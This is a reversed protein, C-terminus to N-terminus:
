LGRIKFTKASGHRIPYRYVCLYGLADAVHDLGGQKDPEGNKAYAQQELAETLEPCGDVNVYLKGCELLKNVSAVRDRVFPNKRNALVTFGANRLLAIDSESANVSKRSSGSADPYVIIRHDPYESKLCAVMAPTDLLGTHERVFHPKDDRLVAVVGAMEGVNFDMGVHLTEGDMIKEATRHTDREFYPYVRGQAMNVFEGNLYADLAQEPYSAKLTDIYGEPLNHANSYTSAKIIRSGPMPNKKWKNYVFRFGEPTTVVGVTNPKGNKKKARNRSVAKSFVDQAKETPLTDLEDLISDGVEYGVIREPKDMTRLIISGCGDVSIVKDHKNLKYKIGLEIFVEEFRPFAIRSILDYTPLYYAVDQGSEMILRITRYIGAASKGSGLGAVMAPLLDDTKVFDYQPASLKIVKNTM